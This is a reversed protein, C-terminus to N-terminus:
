DFFVSASLHLFCYGVFYKKKALPWWHPSASSSLAFCYKAKKNSGEVIFFNFFNHMIHTFKFLLNTACPVLGRSSRPPCTPDSFCVIVRFYITCKAALDTKILRNKVKQGFISHKLHILKSSQPYSLDVKWHYVAGRVWDIWVPYSMQQVFKGEIKYTYLLVNCSKTIKKM